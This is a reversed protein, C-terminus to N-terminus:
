SDIAQQLPTRYAHFMVRLTGEDVDGVIYVVTVTNMALSVRVPDLVQGGPSSVSIDFPLAPVVNRRSQGPKVDAYAVGGDYHVSVAPGNALHRVILRSEGNVWSTNVMKKYLRIRGNPRLYSVVTQPADDKVEIRIRAIRKSRRKAGAPRLDIRHAGQELRVGSRFTGFAVDRMALKGDIYVDVDVDPLGQVFTLPATAPQENAQAAVSVGDLVLLAVLLVKIVLVVLLRQGRRNIVRQDGM